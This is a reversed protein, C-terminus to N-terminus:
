STQRAHGSLPKSKSYGNLPIRPYMLVQRFVTERPNLISNKPLVILEREQDEDEGLEALWDPWWDQFADGIIKSQLIKGLSNNQDKYMIDATERGGWKTVYSYQAHAQVFHRIGSQWDQLDVTNSTLRRLLEYVQTM